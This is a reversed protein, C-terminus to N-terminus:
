PMSRPSRELESGAATRISLRSFRTALRQLLGKRTGGRPEPSSYYTLPVIMADLYESALAETTTNADQAAPVVLGPKSIVPAWDVLSMEDMRYVREYFSRTSMRVPKWPDGTQLIRKFNFWDYRVM